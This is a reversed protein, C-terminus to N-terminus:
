GFAVLEADYMWEFDQDDIVVVKVLHYRSVIIIDYIISFVRFLSPYVSISKASLPLSATSFACCVFKLRMKMSMSIGTM